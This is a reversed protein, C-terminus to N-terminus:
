ENLAKIVAKSLEFVVVVWFPVLVEFWSWDVTGLLKFIILTITLVATERLNYTEKM